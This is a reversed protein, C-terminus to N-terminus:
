KSTSGAAAVSVVSGTLMATNEMGGRRGPGGRDGRDGRDGGPGFGGDPGGVAGGPGGAGDPGMGLDRAHGPGGHWGARGFGPGHGAHRGIGFGIAGVVLVAVLGAAAVLWTRRSRLRSPGRDSSRTPAPRGGAPDEAPLQETPHEADAPRTPRREPPEPTTM